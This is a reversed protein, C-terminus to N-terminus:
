RTSLGLADRAAAVTDGRRGDSRIRIWDLDGLDYSEQLRAVDAGADSVNGVRTEVREVRTETPAELWLGQFPVGTRRAIDALRGRHDSLAFVADAIVSHGAALVAEVEAFVADFTRVTMDAGYAEAPLRDLRGVGALRKRTVDSRVVRACPPPGIEAALERALRSKGTGSLGGIGILRPAEPQLADQADVLYRRAQAALVGWRASDTSQAAGLADVHSRIAARLSLYLPMAALCGADGTADIWRNLMLAVQDNLGRHHLDMLLFALDYAVDIEIFADNFEIADFLVPEGDILCINRLHLDGHCNRVFGARARDKIAPRVREFMGATKAVLDAVLTANLVGGAETQAALCAANVTMVANLRTEIDVDRRIAAAAHYAAVTDAVMGALRRGFAGREVVRDFRDEDNFRVMEVLWDVPDGGGDLVLVGDAERTVAVPGLYFGPAAPANRAVEARCMAERRELTGYDLYPYRVARKLKYARAGILFVISGHTEFHVVTEGARAAVGPRDGYFGADCLRTIVESQDECIEFPDDPM